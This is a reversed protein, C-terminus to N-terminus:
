AHGIDSAVLNLDIGLQHGAALWQQQAATAFVLDHCYDTVLWANASIESELQGPAWGAYGLAIIKNKPGGGRMIERLTKNSSTLFLGSSIELTAEMDVAGDHLIFGRAPEVPGGAHLTIAKPKSDSQEYLLEKLGINTPQNIIIGMAGAQLSHECVLVLSKNFGPDHLAPMAILLQSRLSIDTDATATM